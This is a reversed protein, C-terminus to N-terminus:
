NAANRSRVPRRRQNAHHTVAHEATVTSRIIKETNDNETAPQAHELLYQLPDVEDKRPENVLEYGVM